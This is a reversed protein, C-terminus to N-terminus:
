LNEGATRVKKQMLDDYCWDGFRDRLDNILALLEEKSTIVIEGLTLGQETVKQLKLVRGQYDVSQITTIM